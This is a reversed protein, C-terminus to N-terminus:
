APLVKKFPKVVSNDYVGGAVYPDAAAWERAEELSEFEAVVLSGTFGADQPDENDIAPLPGATFLRNQSDLEHLRALHAPRAAKRLELSNEVDTSYIMYLM